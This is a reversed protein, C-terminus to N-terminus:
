TKEITRGAGEELCLLDTEKAIDGSYKSCSSHGGGHSGWEKECM